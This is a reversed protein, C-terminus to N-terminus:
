EGAIDGPEDDFVEALTLATMARDMWRDLTAEDAAMIRGAIDDPPAGIRTKILKLLITRQKEVRGKVLGKQIGEEILQEATNMLEEANEEGVIAKLLVVVENPSRRDVKLIYSWVASLARDGDKTRRLESVLDVFLYLREILRESTRAHKLCFLAKPNPFFCPRISACPRWGGAAPLPAGPASSMWGVAARQAPLHTLTISARCAETIRMM